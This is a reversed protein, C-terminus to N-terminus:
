KTGKDTMYESTSNNSKEKDDSGTSNNNKDDNDDDNDDDSDPKEPTSGSEPDKSVDAFPNAKGPVYENIVKYNNLDTSTVEYTQVIKQQEQDVTDALQEQIQESAEYKKIEPVVKKNPIYNYFILAFLLIGLFCILLMIILERFIKM